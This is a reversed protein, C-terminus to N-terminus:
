DRTAFRGLIVAGAAIGVLALLARKRAKKRVEKRHQVLATEPHKGPNEPVAKSQALHILEALHLAQRSTQQAIQERCSFGDALILTDTEASRVAPLLVREGIDISVDYKDNEFGFSGAMGCCGSPLEKYDLGLKKLVSNEDDFRLLSKHHCHGQVLAKRKIQPLHGNSSRKELFESLLFTQDRLKNALPDNPFLGHLEDRFVSACSPELVVIPVGAEIEPQLTQMIRQLYRKAEDLFGYDYLPRGCCLHSGPVHIDCGLSHLVGAAAQATEPFFYNNFTDPWLIVKNGGNPRFHNKSFWSQFTEPAFEPIRRQQPMGALLKAVHSLGPTQTVLNVMGPWISALRSWQDILGFAYAQRPRLRGEWYHSLFESKYTAMDVNVPCDGKCGKCSLCLDLAEKVNDDRWGKTIVDGHLM